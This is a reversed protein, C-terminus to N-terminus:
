GNEMKKNMELVVKLEETSLLGVDLSKVTSEIDLSQRAKGELRDVLSNFAATDGTKLAKSIQGLVIGDYYSLTIEEGTLPNLIPGKAELWKRIITSAHLTGKKVGAPNGSQGKKFPTNGPIRNIKSM